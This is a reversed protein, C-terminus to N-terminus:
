SNRKTRNGSILNVRCAERAEDCIGDEMKLLIDRWLYPWWMRFQGIKAEGGGCNTVPM